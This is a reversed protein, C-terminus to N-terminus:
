VLQTAQTGRHRRCIDLAQRRRYYQPFPITTAIRLAKSHSAAGNVELGQDSDGKFYNATLTYTKVEGGDTDSVSSRKSITGDNILGADIYGPQNFETNYTELAVRFDGGGLPMYLKTFSKLLKGDSRQRYGDTREGSIATYVSAEGFKGGLVGLIRGYGYSGATAQLSTAMSDRTTVVISGGQAFNGGYRVDFPGRVITLNQVTEPILPNLDLFGNVGIHTPYNRQFGDQFYALFASDTATPGGECLSAWPNASRGMIRFRFAMAEVFITPSM